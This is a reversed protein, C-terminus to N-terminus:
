IVLEGRKFPIIKRIEKLDIRGVFQSLEFPVKRLLSSKIEESLSSSDKEGPVITVLYPTQKKVATPPGFIIKGSFAKEQKIGISIRPKIKEIIKKEGVVDFVGPKRRRKIKDPYFYFVNTEQKKLWANSFSSIFTAAEYITEAPLPNIKQPNKIVAFVSNDTEPQLIIDNYDVFRKLITKNNRPNKGSIILIDNSSFCWYYREFWKKRPKEESAEEMHNETLNKYKYPM